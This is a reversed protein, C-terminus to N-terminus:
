QLRRLYLLLADRFMDLSTTLDDKAIVKLQEVTVFGVGIAQMETPTALSMLKAIRQCFRKIAALYEHSVGLTLLKTISTQSRTMIDWAVKAVAKGTFYVNLEALHTLADTLSRIGTLCLTLVLESKGRPVPLCIDVVTQKFADLVATLLPSLQGPTPDLEVIKELLSLVHTTHSASTPQYINAIVTQLWPLVYTLVVKPLLSADGDVEDGAAEDTSYDLLPSYWPRQSLDLQEEVWPLPLTDLLVLPSLAAPLSVSIYASKYRDKDRSRFAALRGLVVQPDLLDSKADSMLVSAAAQLAQYPSEPAAADGGGQLRELVRREVAASLDPSEPEALTATPTYDGLQMLDGAQKILYLTDEQALLRLCRRREGVVRLAKAAVEKLMTLQEEKDRMLGVYESVFLRLSQLLSVRTADREMLERWRKGEETAAELDTKLSDLKRESAECSEALHSIAKKTSNIVDQLSPGDRVAADGRFVRAGSSWGYLNSERDLSQEEQEMPAPLSMPDSSYVLPRINGAGGAAGSGRKLLDAEWNQEDADSHVALPIFEPLNKKLTTSLRKYESGDPNLLDDQTGNRKESNRHQLSRLSQMEMEETQFTVRKSVHDQHLQHEEIEETLKGMSEAEDGALELVVDTKMSPVPLSFAQQRRLAQLSEKSYEGGLIPQYVEPLISSTTQQLIKKIAKSAKSKKVKFETIDEGETSDAFSLIPNGKIGKDYSKVISADNEDINEDDDKDVIKKRIQRNKM